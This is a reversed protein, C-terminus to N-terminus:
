CLSYSPANHLCINYGCHCMRQQNDKEFSFKDEGRFDINGQEETQGHSWVVPM